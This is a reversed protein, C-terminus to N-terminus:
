LDVDPAVAVAGSLVAERPSGAVRMRAASPGRVFAEAAVRVCKESLSLGLESQTRRPRQTTM